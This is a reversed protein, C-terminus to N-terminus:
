VYPTTPLTLHTYSVANYRNQEVHLYNLVFGKLGRRDFVFSYLYVTLLAFMIIKRLLGRDLSRLFILKKTGVLTMSYYSDSWKYSRCM